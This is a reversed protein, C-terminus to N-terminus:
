TAKGQLDAGEAASVMRGSQGEFADFEYGTATKTLWWGFYLSASDQVDATQSSNTPSFIWTADATGPPVVEDGTSDLRFDGNAITLSEPCSGATTSTCTFTGPVGRVTGMFTPQNDSNNVLEEGVEVGVHLWRIDKTETDDDVTYTTPKGAASTGNYLQDITKATADAIDTEGRLENKGSNMVAGSFGTISDPVDTAMSYGVVSHTVTLVGDSSKKIELTLEGTDVEPDDGVLEGTVDARLAALIAAAKDSMAMKTAADAADGAEKADANAAALQLELKAIEAELLAKQDGTAGAPPADQAAKLDAALTEMAASVQGLEEVVADHDSQDVDGGCGILGVALAAASAVVFLKRTSTAM